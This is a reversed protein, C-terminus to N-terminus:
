PRKRPHHCPALSCKASVVHAPIRLLPCNCMRGLKKLMVNTAQVEPNSAKPKDALRTSRRPVVNYDPVQSVRLRPPSTLIPTILNSSISSIFDDVSTVTAATAPAAAAAAV